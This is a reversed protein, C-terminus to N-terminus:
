LVRHRLAPLHARVRSLRQSDLDALVVEDKEGAEALVEGWPDVILSHGYSSREGFHHGCLNAAIVFCQNEVARARVLLYWHARGTELTFGAPVTLLEAGRASQLRYLEPFRLDYCISMGVKAWGSDSVVVDRGQVTHMSETVTPGDPLDLDFLHIKRYVAVIAGTEDLFVSTNFVKSPQASKEPIGGLVIQVQLRQVLARAWRQIPADWDGLTEGWPVKADEPGMFAFNEPLVIFRAGEQAAREVLGEATELNREIDPGAEMQVAAVRRNGQM